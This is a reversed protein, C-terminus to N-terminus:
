AALHAEAPILPQLAKLREADVANPVAITRYGRLQVYISGAADLVKADFTRRGPDPTVTAYLKGEVQEPARVVTVHDIHQPLGLCGQTGMEWIGAAQFCLEILRPATLTPLEAPCHNGPLNNAMVAVIRKGDWWAREVVQYAPGHFYLRYLDAAQIISGPHPGPVLATLPRAPLQTLRVRATFHTTTQPEAQNPLPRRGILRCDAVLGDGHPRVVAEITLARPEERYFKFPALFNVEEISEIHWGPVLRTAAEAFAEIGMVGPLVPTGDIQHDHLFPQIKPDLTTEIILPSYVGASTIKGAVPGQAPSRKEGPIELPTTDLGGTVDFENMLVGFRQGIVLEGRTGGATLERRILPIGAEPPLMDIGALEMMKPISGRTAMGIGGWATWDIAIGRTAQRSHRFSSTIKCLLDNASSYDTQGANGFRGAVSSFAVTAGLPMDGIAHLLNFFGDSKVDFVLEFERRDK